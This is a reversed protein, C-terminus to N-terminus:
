SVLLEFAIQLQVRAKNLTGITPIVARKKRESDDSVNRQKIFRSVALLRFFM